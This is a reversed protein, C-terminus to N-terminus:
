QRVLWKDLLSASLSGRTEKIQQEPALACCPHAKEVTCDLYSLRWCQSLITTTTEPGGNYYYQPVSVV